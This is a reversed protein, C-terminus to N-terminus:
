MPLVDTLHDAIENAPINTLDKSLTATVKAALESPLINRLDGLTKPAAAIILRDFSDQQGAIKESVFKAFDMEDQREHSTKPEIAHRASGVSEHVRGPRERENDHGPLQDANMALETLESPQDGRKAQLLVRAQRGDAILILTRVPKM